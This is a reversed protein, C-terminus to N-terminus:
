LSPRKPLTLVLRCLHLHLFLSLRLCCRFRARLTSVLISRRMNAEMCVLEFSSVTVAQSYPGINAPAWYSLGQVHLASRDGVRQSGLAHVTPMPEDDLGVVEVCVRQNSEDMPVAVCARAPPSAGFYRMYAENAAPFLSMDALMLTVYATSLLSPGHRNLCEVCDAVKM